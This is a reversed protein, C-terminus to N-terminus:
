REDVIVAIATNNDNGEKIRGDIYVLMKEIWEEATAADVLAKEMEDEYIHEWFGDTCLLFSHQNGRMDITESIEARVNEERGLARLLKNRDVHERIEQSSIEGRIVAMQSVSHDFTQGVLKGDVFHYLRSDGIHAWTAKKDKLLLMVLTTKMQCEKSQKEYVAHNAKEFVGSITKVDSINESLFQKTIVDAATQSALAGGGHGGLGDAVVFCYEKNNKKIVAYTDENEKRGGINSYEYIDVTKKLWKRFM